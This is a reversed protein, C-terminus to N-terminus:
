QSDKTYVTFLPVTSVTGAEPDRVVQARPGRHPLTVCVAEAKSVLTQLLICQETRGHRDKLLTHQVTLRHRDKLLGCAGPM